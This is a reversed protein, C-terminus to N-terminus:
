KYRWAVLKMSKMIVSHKYCKKYKFGRKQVLHYQSTRQYRFEYDTNKSIKILKAHLSDLAPTLKERCLGYIMQLILSKWYNNVGSLQVRTKLNVKRKSKQVFGRKIIREVTQSTETSQQNRKNKSFDKWKSNTNIFM